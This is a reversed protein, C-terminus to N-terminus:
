TFLEYLSAGNSSLTLVPIIFINLMMYIVTKFYVAAQYQSHSDYKEYVSALDLLSIVGLNILLIVMPPLSKRLYPGLDGFEYAWDFKLFSTPDLKQLRTLMVAPSSLFVIVFFGGIFLFFRTFAFHTDIVGMNKWLIDLPESAKHM